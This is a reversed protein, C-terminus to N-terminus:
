LESDCLIDVWEAGLPKGGASMSHRISSVSFHPSRDPATTLPAPCSCYVIRALAVRKTNMDGNDKDTM